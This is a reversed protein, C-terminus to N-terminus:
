QYLHRQFGVFTDRIVAVGGLQAAADSLTHYKLELLEGLKEQDLEEVGQRVYQGLVFDLFAQLKPDYPALIDSRRAEVRESRTIPLLAFAVYVLVDFVDSNEANIMTGIVKLQDAGFGRDALEELLAKRTDPSSWIRRLEEENKFLEPLQGFLREVFQAGSMPEGDAGLYMTATMHQVLREKSDALKIKIKQPRDQPEDGAGNGRVTTPERDGPRSVPTPELPEVDWEPRSVTLYRV